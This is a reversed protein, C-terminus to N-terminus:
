KREPILYKPAPYLNWKKIIEPHVEKGANLAEQAIMKQAYEGELSNWNRLHGMSQMELYHMPDGLRSKNFTDDRIQQLVKLKAEPTQRLNTEAMDELIWPNKERAKMLSKDLRGQSNWNNAPQGGYVQTLVQELQEDAIQRSGRGVFESKPQFKPHNFTDIAHEAEHRLVGVKHAGPDPVGKFFSDPNMRIENSVPNYDGYVGSNRHTRLGPRPIRYTDSIAELIKIPDETQLKDRLFSGMMMAGAEKPDGASIRSLHIGYDRPSMQAIEKGGARSWMLDKPTAWSNRSINSVVAGAMDKEALQPIAKAVKGVAGAGAKGLALLETTPLVDWPGWTSTTSDETETDGFAMRAARLAEAKSLSLDRSEGPNVAWPNM